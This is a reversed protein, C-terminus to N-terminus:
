KSLLSKLEELKAKFKDLTVQVPAPSTLDVGANKLINLSYDSGGAQLFGLYKEVAKPKKDIISQAFATAASYGTAYKYVYFPTYFHPIRPWESDLLPDVTLADGYYKVNLKHWLNELMDATLCTGKNIEEHINKEFEAFQTQRYVTTRVAELYQNLLYIKQEKTAKELMYDLLLIENTTSAVEACFITYDATTFPQTKSSFYSHLAHGMEHALTSVSNYRPQFNLMVYPHVGYVGWSYAGSRKGKNEYIDIWGNELGEQLAKGYDEGLPKLAEQVASKAEEFTFTFGDSGMKSLPVYMDYPHLKEVNLAEKKLEMYSHLSPLNKEVTNILGDYLSLPINDDDLSASITDPYNHITAFFKASQAKGALSTALTNRFNHYTGMLNEFTNKRLTRDSSTMGLLYSGESVPIEEGKENLANPFALDAGTFM